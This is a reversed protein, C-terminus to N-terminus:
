EDYMILSLRNKNDARKYHMEDVFNRVVHIGLGGPSRDKIDANIDPEEVALPDFLVGDDVFDLMFKDPDSKIQVLLEGPPKEYAYQSINAAVEDSVLLLYTVKKPHLDAAEAHSSIFDLIDPIAEIKAPFVKEAKLEKM